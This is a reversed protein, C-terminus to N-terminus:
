TLLDLVDPEMEGQDIADLLLRERESRPLLSVQLDTRDRAKEPISRKTDAIERCGFCAQVVGKWTEDRENEWDLPHLGCGGCVQSSWREFEIAVERDAALWRPEGPGPIRGLFESYPIGVRCVFRVGTAFMPDNRMWHHFEAPDTWGRISHALHLDPPVIV